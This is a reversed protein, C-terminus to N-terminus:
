QGSWNHGIIGTTLDRDLWRGVGDGLEQDHGMKEPVLGEDINVLAEVKRSQKLDVKEDDRLSACM